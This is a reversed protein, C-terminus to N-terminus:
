EEKYFENFMSDDRSGLHEERFNQAVTKVSALGALLELTESTREDGARRKIRGSGNCNACTPRCDKAEHGRPEKGKQKRCINCWRPCDNSWHGTGRCHLCINFAPDPPSPRTFLSSISHAISAFSGKQKTSKPPVLPPTRTDNQAIMREFAVDIIDASQRTRTPM